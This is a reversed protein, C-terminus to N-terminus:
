DTAHESAFFATDNFGVHQWIDRFFRCDRMCHFFTEEHTGCRTCIPSPVSNHHHLVTLTPVASSCALWILFKYKEPVRLSWIWSWSQTSTNAAGSQSILWKYGSKTTYVGNKNHPWIIQDEIADNFRFSVSNIYDSVEQPITTYLSQARNGDITLVDKVTLHLDHIDIIPTQNGLRGFPSWRNFWFSFSGSGARWSFGNILVNKARIIAAWIASSSSTSTAYFINEGSTYKDSLMKVWLKNNNQVM